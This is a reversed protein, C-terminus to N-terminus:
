EVMVSTLYVVTVMNEVMTVVVVSITFMVGLKGVVASTVITELALTLTELYNHVTYM